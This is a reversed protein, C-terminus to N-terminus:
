NRQKVWHTNSVNQKKIVLTAGYIDKKFHAINFRDALGISDYQCAM